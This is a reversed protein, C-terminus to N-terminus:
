RSTQLPLWAQVRFGGEPRRGAELAGGLLRARERMGALGRGPGGTEATEGAEATPAMLAARATGDDTVSVDLLNDSAQIRVDITSANAHRLVNTLAEQIIRYASLQVGAPVVIGDDVRHIGVTLGVARLPEALEDLRDLAPQPRREEAEDRPATAALLRRLEALAERGTSEISRLAERAAAPHHDFVDDGAAAQVVIVSVSHAIVDHLERALRAQERETAQRSAHAIAARRSRLAEALAWEAVVVAMAFATDGPIATPWSLATVGLLGALVPLSIRPPQTTALSWMAIMGVYPFLASPVILQIVLAGVVAIAAVTRPRSRRWYLALGLGLGLVM